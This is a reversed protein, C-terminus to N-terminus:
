EMAQEILLDALATQLSEVQEKEMRELEDIDDSVGRLSNLISATFGRIADLVRKMIGETVQQQEIVLWTKLWEDGRTSDLFSDAMDKLQKNVKEYLFVFSDKYKARGGEQKKKIKVTLSDVRREGENLQDMVKTIYQETGKAEKEIKKLEAKMENIRAKTDAWSRIANDLEPNAIAM